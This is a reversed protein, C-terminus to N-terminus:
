EQNGVKADDGQKEKLLELGKETYLRQRYEQRLAEVGYSSKEEHEWGENRGRRRIILDGQATVTV